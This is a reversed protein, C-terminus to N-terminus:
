LLSPPRQQSHGSLYSGSYKRFRSKGAKQKDKGQCAQLFFIKPKDVLSPCNTGKFHDIIQPVSIELGDAGYVANLKGHSMICCVFSDLNTHDVRRGIENLLIWIEQATLDKYAYVAFKLDQFIKM